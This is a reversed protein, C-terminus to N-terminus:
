FVETGQRGKFLAIFQYCLVNDNYIIYGQKCGINTYDGQTWAQYVALIDYKILFYPSCSILLNGIFRDAVILFRNMGQHDNM